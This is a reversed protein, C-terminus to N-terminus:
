RTSNKIRIVKGNAEDTLLYLKGQPSQAVKRLRVRDNTFLEEVRLVTEGRVVLRWLSGGSLGAVLLNNKWSPFEDGTYFTLGTPAVTQLWYWIPDTYTNGNLVPPAYEAFRYKGTTKVPWGYNAGGKLVNIEDGQMTGHESFWIAHTVPHKTIGQAARIGIAYLGPIAKPGFDPNDNPITGDSNIRYIKGRKDGVDQAIPLAPEDKENFLREGMTLYLKGDNGFVMGGGYHYREETYPSAVFITQINRLADNELVARIVKTAKEKGKKAAYAVYIFKNQDFQPDVVVDFIGTNDGRYGAKATDAPFGKITLKTKLTLNIKVLTGEKETVLAEEESLFAISWPRNLDTILTEKIPESLDPATLHPIRTAIKDVIFWQQDIKMLNFYDTFTDRDTVIETKAAGVGSTIDMSVIRTVLGTPRQRLRFGSLYQTRNLDIFKGDRFNKLHCSHHMARGVKTSDGTGWGDFYTQIVAEALQRDSPSQATVSVAFVSLNLMLILLRKMAMTKTYSVHGHCFLKGMM